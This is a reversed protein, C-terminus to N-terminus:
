SDLKDKEDKLQVLVAQSNKPDNWFEPDQSLAELKEVSKKLDDIKLSQSLLEIKKGLDSLTQQSQELLIIM